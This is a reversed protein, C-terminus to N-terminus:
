AAGIRPVPVTDAFPAVGLRVPTGTEFRARLDSVDLGWPATAQDAGNSTDRQMPPVTVARANALDAALQDREATLDDVARQLAANDDTLENIRANAAKLTESDKVGQIASATLKLVQEELLAVRDIARHKKPATAITM